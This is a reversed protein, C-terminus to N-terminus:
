VGKYGPVKLFHDYEEKSVIAVGEEDFVTLKKTTGYGSQGAKAPNKIKYEKEDEEEPNEEEPNEDDEDDDEPNEDITEPKEEEDNDDNEENNDDIGLDEDEKEDLGEDKSEGPDELGEDKEEVDIGEDKEDDM